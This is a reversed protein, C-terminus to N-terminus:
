LEDDSITQKSTRQAIYERLRRRATADMEMFEVGMGQGPDTRRVIGKIAFMEGDTFRLRLDLIQGRQFTRADLLYIGSLSIDRISPGPLVYEVKVAADTRM